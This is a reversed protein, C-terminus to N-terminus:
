EEPPLSALRGSSRRIQPSSPKCVDRESESEETSTMRRSARSHRIARRTQEIRRFPGQQPGSGGIHVGSHLLRSALGTIPCMSGRNTSTMSSTQAISRSTNRVSFSAVIATDPVPDAPMSAATHLTTSGPSLTTM